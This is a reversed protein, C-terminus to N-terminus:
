SCCADRRELGPSLECDVDDDAKERGRCSIHIDLECTSLCFATGRTRQVFSSAEFNRFLQSARVDSLLPVGGLRALRPKSVGVSFRHSPTTQTRIQKYVRNPFVCVVVTLFVSPFVTLFLRFTM